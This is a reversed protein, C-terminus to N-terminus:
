EIEPLGLASTVMFEALGQGRLAEEVVVDSLYAFSIRDTVLRLFGVLDGTPAYLGFAWANRARAACDELSVGQCWYQPALLAHI